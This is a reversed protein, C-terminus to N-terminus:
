QAPRKATQSDAHRHVIKWGDKQLRFIMTVRYNMTAEAQTEPIKFRIQELQVVYGIKGEARTVLRDITNTGNSFQQGAWDLRKSVSTWGKEVKGGFGGSLTVDEDHSWLAKFRDPRGNQLELQASDMQSLFAAFDKPVAQSQGFLAPTCAFLMFILFTTLCNLNM